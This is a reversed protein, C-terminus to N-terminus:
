PSHGIAVSVNLVQALELLSPCKQVPCDIAVGDSCRVTAVGTSLDTQLVSTWVVEALWKFLLTLLNIGFLMVKFRQQDNADVSLKVFDGQGLWRKAVYMACCVFCSVLMM